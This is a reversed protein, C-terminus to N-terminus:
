AGAMCQAERHQISQLYRVIAAIRADADARSRGDRDDRGAIIRHVRVTPFM